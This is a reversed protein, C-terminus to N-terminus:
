PRDGDRGRVNEIESRMDPLRPAWEPGGDCLADIERMLQPLKIQLRTEIVSNVARFRAIDPPKASGNTRFASLSARYHRFVKRDGWTPDIVVVLTPDTAPAPKATSRRARAPRPKPADPPRASRRDAEQEQPGREPPHDNGVDNEVAPQQRAALAWIMRKAAPDLAEAGYLREIAARAPDNSEWLGLIQGPALHKDFFIREFESRLEEAGIVEIFGGEADALTFSEQQVPELMEAQSANPAEAAGAGPREAAERETMTAPPVEVPSQPELVTRRPRPVASPMDQVRKVLAPSLGRTEIFDDVEERIHLGRLVDAFGDRITWSRARMKLMRQPYSQWPGEKQTLRAQEAMAM